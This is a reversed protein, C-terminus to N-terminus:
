PLSAPKVGSISLVTAPVKTPLIRLFNTTTSVLTESQIVGPYDLINLRDDGVDDVDGDGLVLVEEVNCVVDVLAVEATLVVAVVGVPYLDSKVLDLRAFNDILEKGDDFLM